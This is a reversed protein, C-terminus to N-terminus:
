SAPLAKRSYRSLPRAQPMSSGGPSSRALRSGAGIKVGAVLAAFPWSSFTVKSRM